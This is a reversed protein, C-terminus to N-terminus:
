PPTAGSEEHLCQDLKITLRRIEAAARRCLLGYPIHSHNMPSHEYWARADEPVRELLEVLLTECAQSAMTQTGLLREIEDLLARILNGEHHADCLFVSGRLFRCGCALTRDM